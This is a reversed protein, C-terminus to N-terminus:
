VAHVRKSQPTCTLTDSSIPSVACPSEEQSRSFQLQPDCSPTVSHTRLGGFRGSFFVCVCVFVGCACLSCLFKLNALQVSACVTM